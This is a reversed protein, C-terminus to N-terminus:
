DETEKNRCLSPIHTTDTMSKKSWGKHGSLAVLALKPQSVFKEPLITGERGAFVLFDLHTGRPRGLQTMLQPGRAVDCPFLPSNPPCGPSSGQWQGCLVVPFPPWSQGGSLGGGSCLPRLLGFQPPPPPAGLIFFLRLLSGLLAPM